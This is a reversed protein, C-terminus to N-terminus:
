HGAYRGLVERHPVRAHEVPTAPLLFHSLFIDVGLECSVGSIEKFPLAGKPERMPEGRVYARRMKQPEGSSM